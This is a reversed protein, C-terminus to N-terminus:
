QLKSDLYKKVKYLLRDSLKRESINQPSVKKEEKKETEEVPSLPEIPPSEPAEALRGEGLFRFVPGQASLSVEDNVNLPSQVVVPQRNIQILQQGTLDKIWYQNQNFFIQAHLEHISPHDLIFDCEPGKGITIPLERYSRLTPGYQIILPASTKQASVEKPQQPELQIADPKKVENQSVAQKQAVPSSSEKIQEKQSSAPPESIHEPSVEKMQTLFSFKPGGEAITLVDGNNLFIEHVRKGNVFTGNKSRDILKFRNGERIIEAHKRSIITLDPPFRLDCSPDRGILISEGTFEQIEGKLPGQIHVLQVVIVPVAKM